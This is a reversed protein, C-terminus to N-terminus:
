AERRKLVVAAGVLAIAAFCFWQVAYSLHPGADLPPLSLRAVKDPANASDGLAVLYFPFVPYPLAKAVVDYSLRAIVTPKNTFTAGGSSPLEDVYGVFTSDAERWKAHDVTSGDPSYVWGRNVLVATDSGRLKLPTLFYVGPSGKYSRTAFTLEHDYDLTGTARARRFRSAATDRSLSAVDTAPAAYRDAVLANRALRQQRRSLQWFGLRVFLAAAVVALGAFVVRNARGTM